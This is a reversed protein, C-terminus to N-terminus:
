ALLFETANPFIGPFGIGGSEEFGLLVGGNLMETAVYKFGVPTETLELATRRASNKDVMSTTTLAKVVRGPRQSECHFPAAAPL